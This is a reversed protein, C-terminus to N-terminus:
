AERQNQELWHDILRRALSVRGPIAPMHEASFWGGKNLESRQLTLTGSEYEATFGIMLGFPYPWPQSAFYRLNTIHLGTEEMGERHVCAELTEGTEVFGAVLGMYDRKFKHSQVLLIEKGGRRTIAVIIAAAPSPWIEKGCATCRKSIDTHWAMHAGCTGCFRHEADWHLLERAKAAMAYHAQPLVYFTERLGMWQWGEPTEDNGVETALCIKGNLAPLPHWTNSTPLHLPPTAQLPVHGQPTLLLRGQNFTFYYNM